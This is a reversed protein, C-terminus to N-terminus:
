GHQDAARGGSALSRYVRLARQRAKAHDVMPNPYTEGLRVGADVLVPASATWPAHIFRNPM